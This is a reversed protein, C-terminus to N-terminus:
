HWTSCLRSPSESRPNPRRGQRWRDRWEVFPALTQGLIDSRACDAEIGYEFRPQGDPHEFTGFLVDWIPFVNAYNSCSLELPRAHHIRHVQPTLVWRHLFEPVRVSVNAHAIPGFITVAAAYALMVERPVGILALPAYCLLNRMFMDLFHSRGSKLVNLREADHHLMHVPWLWSATHMWRHRWYDVGDAFFVLLPVQVWIPWEAPWLNGGWRESIEGALFAAAFVFVVQGLANGGGQGVIGHFADNWLQPDRASGQDPRDPTVLELGFLLLFFAVPVLVLGSELFGRQFCAVFGVTSSVVVAPWLVHQLISRAASM